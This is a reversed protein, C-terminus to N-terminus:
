TFLHSYKFSKLILVILYKINEKPIERFTPFPLTEMPPTLYSPEWTGEGQWAVHPICRSALFIGPANLYKNERLPLCLAADLEAM